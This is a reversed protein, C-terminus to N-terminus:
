LILTVYCPIVNCVNKVFHRFLGLLAQRDPVAERYQHNVPWFPFYIHVDDVGVNGVDGLAFLGHVLKGACLAHVDFVKLVALAYRNVCPRQVGIHVGLTGLLRYKGDDASLLLVVGNGGSELTVKGVDNGEHVALIKCDDDGLGGALGPAFEDGTLKVTLLTERPVYLIGRSYGRPTKNQPETLKNQPETFNVRM